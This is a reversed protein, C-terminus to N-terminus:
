GHRGFDHLPEVQVDFVAHHHLIAAAASVDTGPEDAAYGDKRHPGTFHLRGQEAYGNGGEIAFALADDVFDPLHHDGARQGGHRYEQPTVLIELAVLLGVEIFKGADPALTVEEPDILAQATEHQSARIGRQITM